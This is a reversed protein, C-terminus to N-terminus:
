RLLSLMVPIAAAALVGAALIAVLAFALIVRAYTTEHIERLGAVLVVMFWLGGILNGLLPVAGLIQTAQGYAVVRFTGEFGHGAGRAVRLFLHLVASTVFLAAAVVFPSLVLVLPFLLSVGSQSGLVRLGGGLGWAATAFEWFLSIMAGLSGFLLGVAFPEKLGGGRHLGRFFRGPSFLVFVFSRRIGAWLGIQDREEWPSPGRSSGQETTRAAEAGRETLSTQAPRDTV